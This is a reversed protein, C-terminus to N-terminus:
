GPCDSAYAKFAKELYAIYEEVSNYGEDAAIAEFDDCSKGENLLELIQAFLEKMKKCDYGLKDLEDYKAELQEALSACSKDSIKDVPNESEDDSCSAGLVALAVILIITFVNKIKNKM